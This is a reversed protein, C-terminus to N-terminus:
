VCVGYKRLGRRGGGEGVRIAVVTINPRHRYCSGQAGDEGCPVVAAPGASSVAAATRWMTRGPWVNSSTSGGGM